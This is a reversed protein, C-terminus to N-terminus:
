GGAGTTSYAGPLTASHRMGAVQERWRAVAAEKVPGYGKVDMVSEAIAVQVDYPVATEPVLVEALLQDYDDILAREMRRDRDWGFPDFPTGRLRKMRQLVQFAVEYPAGLPLKKQLGLRRLVPPHLHYKVAYPGAIGLSRALREHDVRLHLRAVEYEDKYTLLKYWGAAVARTLAWEGAASDRRAAREVLDLYRRARAEDQYDFVQATRRILLPRLSEPLDRDRVMDTAAVVLPGPPDFPDRESGADARAAAELAADVAAPDHVAWRGWTFADRNDSASRGPGAMAADIDGPALPLGGLQYAAGLLVINALLHDAFVAEAIRRSDLLAVRDPGVRDSITAELQALDPPATGTQLMPATPTFSRDVVAITRGPNVKQLHREAAAQLIDGSLYLDAGGSSVTAASLAGHHTALHLHSVVAGAKQSLGTQDMGSIVYGASGAATAIIRNATVVGTGGIGTFYIGYRDPV